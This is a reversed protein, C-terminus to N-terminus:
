GDYGGDSSPSNLLALIKKGLDEYQPEKPILILNTDSMCSDDCDEEINIMWEPKKIEKKMISMKLAEFWEDRIKNQAKYEDTGYEATIPPLGNVGEREEIEELYQDDDCFVGYYFVQDPHKDDNKTMELVCQVLEKAESISNQYTYIVTSSNTIVDVISHFKLKIIM